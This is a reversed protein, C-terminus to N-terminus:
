THSQCTTESKCCLSLPSVVGMSSSFISSSSWRPPQLWRVVCLVGDSGVPHESVEDVSPVPIEGPTAARSCTSRMVERARDKCIGHDPSLRAIISLRQPCLLTATAQASSRFHMLESYELEHTHVGVV